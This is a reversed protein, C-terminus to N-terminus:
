KYFLLTVYYANNLDKLVGFGLHTFDDELNNRHPQSRLWANVFSQANYYGYAVNESVKLAGRNKLAASRKFFGHHNVTKSAIMNLSHQIAHASAYLSDKLLEAKGLSHRHTNIHQLIEKAM